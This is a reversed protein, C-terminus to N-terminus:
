DVGEDAEEEEGSALLCAQNIVEAPDGKNHNSHQLQDEKDTEEELSVVVLEHSGGIAYFHKLVQM